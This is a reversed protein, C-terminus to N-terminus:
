KELVVIEVRRNRARGAATGDDAVPETEGRGLAQLRPKPVGAAALVAAVADARRQSLAQNADAEGQSDTHGEIRVEAAGGAQLYAALARVSRVAAATLTAQGSGFADGSLTFVEGQDERRSPPLTGGALLAAEQRALAAERERASALRAAQDGAVEAIVDEAQQRALAAAEAAARLRQAEEAQIQAEVRLREAEQRARAADQRSAEVLLESRERDLRDIERRTAETRASLEAIAVRDRAIALAAERERNRAGLAIDLSQRARLREYAALGQLAPDADLAALRAAVGAADAAANIDIQAARVPDTTGSASLQLTRQLEAIEARRQAAESDALRARSITHALDAQAAAALAFQRAESERGRAMAAQAQALANRATSIQQAAYQDADAADARSVAADAASLEATPPPLSACGALALLLGIGGAYLTSPFHAFSSRM